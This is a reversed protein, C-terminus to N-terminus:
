SWRGAAFPEGAPMWQVPVESVLSKLWAAVERGGPEESGELGLVILGKKQGSAIVDQFYPSAEWEVPEGIVVADPGVALARVMEPTTIMGTRVAVLEVPTAPDGIVRIANLKLKAGIERALAHLTTAPRRYMIHEGEGWGLAQALGPKWGDRMRYFVMQHQEIFSQKAQFVPNDALQKPTRNWFPPEHCIFLNYGAAAAQRLVNFTPAFSVVIGTVATRAEGAVIGDGNQGRIRGAIQEATM